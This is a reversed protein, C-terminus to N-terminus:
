IFTVSHLSSNVKTYLLIKMLKAPGVNVLGLTSLVEVWYLFKSRLCSEMTMFLNAPQSSAVVHDQWYRCAYSVETSITALQQKENPLCSSSAGAINFHLKMSMIDLCGYTLNLNAEQPDVFWAKGSQHTDQLYDPFSAHFTTITSHNNDPIYLLSHLGSLAFLVRRAPLKLFQGLDEITLVDRACVIACLCRQTIEAENQEFKGFVGTLIHNYIAYVPEKALVLDSNRSTLQELRFEADGETIYKVATSAYIFFMGSSKTLVSIDADPPWSEDMSCLRQDRALATLEHRLYRAIDDQVIAQDVDHLRLITPYQSFLADRIQREPRSTVFFKVRSNPAHKLVARLLQATADRDDCEDLADVVFVFTPSPAHYAQDLPDGLLTNFQDELTLVHILPPKNGFASTRANRYAPFVTGLSDSLGPLINKVNREAQGGERSCLFWSGLIRKELLLRIFSLAIATKGTGAMGNLWYVHASHPDEAWVVLDRLIHVCTGPLCGTKNPITSLRALLDVPLSTFELM